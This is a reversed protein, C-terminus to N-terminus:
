QDTVDILGHQSLEELLREIDARLTAADIEFKRLLVQQAQAITCGSGLVEWIETGVADLGFYIESDLNLLVSEDGVRRVLVSDRARVLKDPNM